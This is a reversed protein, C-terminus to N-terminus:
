GSGEPGRETRRAVDAKRLVQDFSAPAEPGPPEGAGADTSASGEDPDAGTMDTATVPAEPQHHDARHLLGPRRIGGRRRGSAV